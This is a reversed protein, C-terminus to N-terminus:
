IKRITPTSARAAPLVSGKAPPDLRGSINVKTFGPARFDLRDLRWASGDSRLESGFAQLVAGGLTMADISVTLSVPISPRMMGGFLEVFAQTAAAPLRRPAVPTAILRDLDIQRASLAGQLRPREGFKIEAAGDLKVAREEPGYQFEIQELLASQAAAKVKSTLRWPEHAM